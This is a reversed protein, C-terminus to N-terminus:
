VRRPQAELEVAISHPLNRLKRERLAPALPSKTEQLRDKGFIVDACMSLSTRDNGSVRVPLLSLKQEFLQKRLTRIRRLRGKIAQGGSQGKRFNYGHTAIICSRCFPRIPLKATDNSQEVWGRMRVSRYPRPRNMIIPPTIILPAAGPFVSAGLREVRAKLLSADMRM